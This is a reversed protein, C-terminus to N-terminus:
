QNTFDLPATLVSYSGFIKLTETHIKLEELAAQVFPQTADAELDIFFLYEGLSRKTPRSEIRSLNIQRNAFVQLPKVLAGPVNAPVSFGLSTHTGGPSADLSLVWFRTYNHPYDNIPYALIPLQYLQAARQSSIAGATKERELNKLVETTSNTSILQANPLFKALWDQCQALAQPHSYVKQIEELKEATSLLAHSIPLVLALQIQLEDLQWLTDLTMPVNGEISNEVPVVARQVQGQAVAQLTKAITPYPHLLCDQGTERAMKEVYALAAAETYTGPPGLHAILLTM